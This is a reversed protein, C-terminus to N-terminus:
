SSTTKGLVDPWTWPGAELPPLERGYLPALVSLLEYLTHATAGYMLHGDLEFVPSLGQLEGFTWPIALIREAAVLPLLPVVLVKEVEDPSPVFPAVPVAAVFPSLRYDSTFLPISSLEGLVEAADIGLEERAERLATAALDADGPDPRGGPFSVEGAHQRLHSARVTAICEAEGDRWVMPVLVASPLHNRRGPLAPMHVRPHADLAARVQAATPASM